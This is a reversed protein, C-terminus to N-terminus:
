NGVYVILLDRKNDPVKETVYVLFIRCSPPNGKKSIQLLVNSSEIPNKMALFKDKGIGIGKIQAEKAPLKDSNSSFICRLGKKELEVIIAFSIRWDKCVIVLRKGKNIKYKQAHDAIRIEKTREDKLMDFFTKNTLYLANRWKGLILCLLEKPLLDM